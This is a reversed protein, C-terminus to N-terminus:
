ARTVPPQNRQVPAVTLFSDRIQNQKRLMEDSTIMSGLMMKQSIHQNM